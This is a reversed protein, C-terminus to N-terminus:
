LLLSVSPISSLTKMHRLITGISSWLYTIVLMTHPVVRGNKGKIDLM